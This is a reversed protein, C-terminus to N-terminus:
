HYSASNCRLKVNDIRTKAYHTVKFKQTNEDSKKIRIWVDERM